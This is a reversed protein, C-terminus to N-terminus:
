CVQIESGLSIHTPFLYRQNNQLVKLALVVPLVSCVQELQVQM